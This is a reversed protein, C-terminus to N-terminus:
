GRFLFFALHLKLFILNLLGEFNLDFPFWKLNLGVFSDILFQFSLILFLICPVEEFNRFNLHDYFKIKKLSIYKGIRIPLDSYKFFAERILPQYSFSSLKMNRISRHSGGNIVVLVDINSDVGDRSNLVDFRPDERLASYLVPPFSVGLYQESGKIPYDILVKVTNAM